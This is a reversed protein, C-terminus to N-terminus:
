RQVGIGLKAPGTGGHGLDGVIARGGVLDSHSPALWQPGARDKARIQDLRCTTPPGGRRGRREAVTFTVSM